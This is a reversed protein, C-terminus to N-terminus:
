LKILCKIKNEVSFNKMKRRTFHCRDKLHHYRHAWRGKGMCSHVLASMWPIQAKESNLSVITKNVQTIINNLAKQDEVLSKTVKETYLDSDHSGLKAVREIRGLYTIGCIGGMIILTNYNKKDICRDARQFLRKLNCGPNTSVTIVGPAVKDFRHQLGRGRSDAEILVM